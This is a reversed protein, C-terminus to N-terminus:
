PLNGMPLARYLALVALHLAGLARNGKGTPDEEVMAPTRLDTAEEDKLDIRFAEEFEMVLEVGDLGM